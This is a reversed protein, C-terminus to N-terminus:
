SIALLCTTPQCTPAVIGSSSTVLAKCRAKQDLQGRRTQEHVGVAAPVLAAVGVAGQEVLVPGQARLAALAVAVM